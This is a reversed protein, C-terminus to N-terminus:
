MYDIITKYSEEITGSYRYISDNIFLNKIPFINAKKM